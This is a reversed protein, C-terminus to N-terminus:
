RDPKRYSVDTIRGTLRVRCAGGIGDQWALV